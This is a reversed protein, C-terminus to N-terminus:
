LRMWFVSASLISGLENQLWCKALVLVLCVNCSLFSCSLMWWWNLQETMDSEKCSWPSCCVLSGQGDGVEPAQEFGHGNIWHHRGVDWGRNDGEGRAKLRELFWSRENLWDYYIHFDEVFYKLFLIYYCIFVCMVLVLHFIDWDPETNLYWNSTIWSM